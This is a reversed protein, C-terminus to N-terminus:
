GPGGWQGALCRRGHGDTRNWVGLAFSCRSGTEDRLNRQWYAEEHCGLKEKENAMELNIKGVRLQAM